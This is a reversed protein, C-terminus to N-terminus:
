APVTTLCKKIKLPQQVLTLVHHADYGINNKFTQFSVLDHNYKNSVGDTNVNNNNNENHLRVLEHNHNLPDYQLNTTQNLFMNSNSKSQHYEHIINSETHELRRRLEAIVSHLETLRDEYRSVQNTLENRLQEKERQLRQVERHNMDRSTQLGQLRHSLDRIESRLQATRQVHLTNACEFLHRVNDLFHNSEIEKSKICFSETDIHRPLNSLKNVSQINITNTLKQNQLDKASNDVDNVSLLNFENTMTDNEFENRISNMPLPFIIKYLDPFDRQMLLHLSQPEGCLDQAGSDYEAGSNVLSTESASSELNINENMKRVSNENVEQGNNQVRAHIKNTTHGCWSLGSRKYIQHNSLGSKAFYINDAETQMQFVKERCSLFEDFTICGKTNAGLTNIIEEACEAMNLKKCMNYLDECDLCGDNNSDCSLFLQRLREEEGTSSSDSGSPKM